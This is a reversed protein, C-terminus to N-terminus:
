EVIIGQENFRVRGLFNDSADTAMFVDEQRSDKLPLSHSDNRL